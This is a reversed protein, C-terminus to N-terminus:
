TSHLSSKRKHRLSRNTKKKKKMKKESSIPKFEKKSLTQPQIPQEQLLNNAMDSRGRLRGVRDLLLQTKNRGEKGQAKGKQKGKPKDKVREM